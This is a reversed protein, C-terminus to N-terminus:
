AGNFTINVQEVTETTSKLTLGYKNELQTIIADIGNDLLLEFRYLAIRQQKVTISRNLKQGLKDAFTPLSAIIQWKSNELSSQYTVGDPLSNNTKQLKSDDFVSLQYVEQEVSDTTVEYGLNKQMMALVQNRVSDLDAKNSWQVEIKFDQRVYPNNKINIFDNGYLEGLIYSLSGSRQFLSPGDAAGKGSQDIHKFMAQFLPQEIDFIVSDTSVAETKSATQDVSSNEQNCGTGFLIIFALLIIDKLKM